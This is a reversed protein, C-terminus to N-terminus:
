TSGDIAYAGYARQGLTEIELGSAKISAGAGEAFLAYARSGDGQQEGRGTENATRISGGTLQVSTESGDTSTAHAGYAHLGLTEIRTDFADVASGGQARIGSS